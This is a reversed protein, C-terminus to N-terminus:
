IIVLTPSRFISVHLVMPAAKADTSPSGQSSRVTLSNTRQALTAQTLTGTMMILEIEKPYSRLEVSVM